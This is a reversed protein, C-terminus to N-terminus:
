KGSVTRNACVIVNSKRSSRIDCLGAATQSVVNQLTACFLTSRKVNMNINHPVIVYRSYKYLQDSFHKCCHDFSIAELVM